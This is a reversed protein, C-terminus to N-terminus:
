RSAADDGGGRDCFVFFRTIFCVVGYKQFHVFYLQLGRFFSPIKPHDLCNKLFHTIELILFLGLLINLHGIDCYVVTQHYQALKQHSYQLDNSSTSSPM